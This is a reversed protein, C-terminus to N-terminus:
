RTLRVCKLEMLDIFGDGGTDYKRFTKEYGKIQKRTLEPFEAYRCACLVTPNCLIAAAWAGISLEPFPM